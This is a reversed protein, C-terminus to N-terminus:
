REDNLMRTHGVLDSLRWDRKREVINHYSPHMKRLLSNERFLNVESLESCRFLFCIKMM